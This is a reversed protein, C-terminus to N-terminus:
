RKQIVTSDRKKKKKQGQAPFGVFLLPVPAFTPPSFLETVFFTKEWIGPKPWTRARLGFEVWSPSRERGRQTGGGIEGENGKKM